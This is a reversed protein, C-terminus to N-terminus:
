EVLDFIKQKDTESIGTEINKSQAYAIFFNYIEKDDKPPNTSNKYLLRSKIFDENRFLEYAEKNKKPIIYKEWKPWILCYKLIEWKMTFTWRWQNKWIRQIEEQVQENTIISNKNEVWSEQTSISPKPKIVENPYTPKKEKAELSRTPKNNGWPTIMEISEDDLDPFYNSLLWTNPNLTNKPPLPKPPNGIKMKITFIVGFTDRIPVVMEYTTAWVRFAILESIRLSDLYKQNIENFWQWSYDHAKWLDKFNNYVWEYFENIRNSNNSFSNIYNEDTQKVWSWKCYSFNFQLDNLSWNYENDYTWIVQEVKEKDEENWKKAYWNLVEYDRDVRNNHSETYKKFEQLWRYQSMAIDYEEWTECQYTPPYENQEVSQQVESQLLRIDKAITSTDLQNDTSELNQGLKM